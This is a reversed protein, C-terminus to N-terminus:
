KMEVVPTAETKLRIVSYIAKTDGANKWGHEDGSTVLVLSGPSARLSRGNIVVDLPGEKVLIIEEDPHHHSVHPAEGAKLTTIHCESNALPLTPRDTVDRREGVGTPKAERSEWTYVTSGIKVPEDAARAVPILAVTLLLLSGIAKM